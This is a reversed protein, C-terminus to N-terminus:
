DSRKAPKNKHSLGQRSNITTELLQKATSGACSLLGSDTQFRTIGTFIDELNSSGAKASNIQRNNRCRYELFDLVEELIIKAFVVFKARLEQLFDKKGSPNPTLFDRWFYPCLIILMMAGKLRPGSLPGSANWILWGGRPAFAWLHDQHSVVKCAAVGGKM